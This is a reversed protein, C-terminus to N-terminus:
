LIGKTTEDYMKIVNDISYKELIKGKLDEAWEKPITPSERFKVVKKKFDEESVRAWKSGNVFINNDVRSKHIEELSYDLGIYKGLSLFDVHGSWSTAIVPLGCAASELIPLGYGEGRTPAVLAKVKKHKYLSVVEDDTMDGHMLHIKPFSTHRVERVLNSVIQTVNARDITTNRGSNTKIVVGVEPDDKFVECLWKIAYFINKRDNEPNNGTLQGFILFNFPTSFDVVDVATKVDRACSPSYSEPVIRIPTDIKGGNELCKASHTSPVIVLSMANCAKVWEPNCKDTEVAATIGINVKGLKPDWENPLQLQVTVDYYRGTTDVTKELLRGIFGDDLKGDIIWPTTGWQLAQVDVDIDSRSFLWKAINRSHVGYGSQTLVPARLLVRKKPVSSMFQTMNFVNTM